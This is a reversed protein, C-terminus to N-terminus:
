FDFIESLPMEFGALITADRLTDGVQYMVPASDPTRVTITRTTPEVIWVARTGAQFYLAVKAEVEHWTDNPSNVEVALDPAGQIFGTPTGGAPLNETSVFSVDPRKITTPDRQLVFGTEVYVDGARREHSWNDLWRALRAALKGHLAGPGSMDQGAYKDVVKGCLLEYHGEGRLEYFEEASLEGEFGLAEQLTRPKVQAFSVTEAVM